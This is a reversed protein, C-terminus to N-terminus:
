NVVKFQTIEWLYSEDGPPTGDSFITRRGSDEAQDDTGAYVYHQTLVNQIYYQDPNHASPIINVALKDSRSTVPNHVHTPHSSDVYRSEDLGSRIWFRGDHSELFFKGTEDVTKKRWTFVPYYSQGLNSPATKWTKDWNISYLYEQYKVNKIAVPAKNGNNAVLLQLNLGIPQNFGIIVNSQTAALVTRLFIACFLVRLYM